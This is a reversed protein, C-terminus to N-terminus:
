RKMVGLDREGLTEASTIKYSGITETMVDKLTLGLSKIAYNDICPFVDEVFSFGEHQLAEKICRKLHEIHVTSTRAYFYRRNSTIIGQANIPSITSGEPTLTTKGGLRTTPSLQGGTMALVENNNCIVTINDNRRAAHLLHNGGIGLLDGDGSVVVVNLKPNAAKIGVANPIPRGHLGHLTDLNFYSASRGSCGIGSVIVTNTLKLEGLVETVVSFLTHLGCGPCWKAPMTERKVYELDM